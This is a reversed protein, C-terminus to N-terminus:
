SELNITYMVKGLEERCKRDTEEEYEEIMELLELTRSVIKWEKSLMISALGIGRTTEIFLCMAKVPLEVTFKELVEEDTVPLSFFSNNRWGSVITVVGRSIEEIISEVFECPKPNELIEVDEAILKEEGTQRSVLVKIRAFVGPKFKKPIDRMFVTRSKAGPSVVRVRYSIIHKRVVPEFSAIYGYIEISEDNM